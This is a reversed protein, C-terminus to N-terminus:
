RNMREILMLGRLTLLPAVEDISECHAAVLASSGGTAIVRASGDGLEEKMRGVMGDIMSVAGFLIGSRLAEGTRGGIARAPFELRPVFLRATRRELARAGTVVGPAIAGGIFDGTGNVVDFTTATGLDVAIVASRRTSWAGAANAIRDPGVSAPEEMAMRVGVDIGSRGPDRGLLLLPIGLGTEVARALAEETEAAGACAIAREPPPSGPAGSSLIARLEDAAKGGPAVKATEFRGAERVTGGDALGVTVNTNGADIVLIM